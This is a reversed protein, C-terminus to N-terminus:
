QTIGQAQGAFATGGLIEDLFCEHSQVGIEILDALGPVPKVPGHVVQRQIVPAGRALDDGEGAALVGILDFGAIGLGQRVLLDNAPFADPQDPERELGEVLAALFEHLEFEIFVEAVLLDAGSCAQGRSM